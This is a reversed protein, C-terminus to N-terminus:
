ISELLSDFDGETLQEDGDLLERAAEEYEEGSLRGKLSMLALLVTERDDTPESM